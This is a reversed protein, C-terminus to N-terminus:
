DQLDSFMIKGRHNFSYFSPRNGYTEWSRHALEAAAHIDRLEGAVKVIGLIALTLSFIVQVIIDGPLNVFEEETLKLYIKYQVASYGSHILSMIGIM